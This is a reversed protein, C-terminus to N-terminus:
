GSRALITVIARPGATFAITCRGEETAVNLPALETEDLRALHAEHVAATLTWTGHQDRDSLNVCRLVIARGDESEKIASLSLATGSLEIGGAREVDTIASRLTFGRLPTLFRASEREVADIVSVSSPGHLHIALRAEFPGHSQAAPTSEPWGAHGPREPLDNRSLEGVARVLTVWATGDASAEYEALGDSHITAGRSRSFLSVYRHLPATAPPTEMRRDEDPVILPAREVRGFAADAVVTPTTIGTSLGIRLRHSASHNEGSVFVEVLPSDATVRLAMRITARPAGRKADAAVFAWDQQLEGILPGKHVVRQRLLRGESAVDRISPTYLDGADVLDEFRLLGAVTEGGVTVSVVGTRDFKVEMGGCQFGDRTARVTSTRALEAPLADFVTLGMGPQPPVYCAVLSARVIDNDPYHRAAEVRSRAVASSLLQAGKPTKRGAADAAAVEEIRPGNGSGPGVPEDALKEVQEIIVVGGRAFPAGNEIVIRDKTEQKTERASSAEHGLLAHIADTALAEGQLLASRLRVDMAAAVDDVSTGCLTDHPHAELLTKWGARLQDVRSPGGTIRALASWAEAHCLAREARANARKQAARTGFTGQLTWTYGYSDRLEGTIIPPRQAEARAVLAEAFGRLSGTRLRYGSQHALETLQAVAEPLDRQRAHHDAGNQLMTVGVSARGALTERIRQWRARAADPEAPLSSGLEYGDPPLHFVIAQAGSPAAWRVVDGSPWRRGGYGRWLIILPLGFGQALEPLVAPHGFSDPCYLVPPSAAGLSALTHRGLLLNRVLAEGGPILEDALVYWPGAELRGGRLLAAIRDRAAPRVALYDELVIAQGDLLFSEGDAPPKEILEDVLDVLRQRFVEATRYWERDWHTHSVVHIELPM